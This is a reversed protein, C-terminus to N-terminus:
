LPDPKQPEYHPNQTIVLRDDVADVGDTCQSHTNEYNHPNFSSEFTLRMSKTKKKNITREISYYGPYAKGRKGIPFYDLPKTAAPRENVYMTTKLDTAVARCALGMALACTYADNGPRHTVEPDDDDAHKKRKWEALGRLLDCTAFHDAVTTAMTYPKEKDNSVVPQLSYANTWLTSFVVPNERLLQDAEEQRPVPKKPRMRVRKVCEWPIRTRQDKWSTWPTKQCPRKTLKVAQKEPILAHLKTKMSPTHYDDCTCVVKPPRDCKTKPAYLEALAARGTPDIHEVNTILLVTNEPVGRYFRSYVTHKTENGREECLDDGAWTEVVHFGLSHMTRIVDSALCDDDRGCCLLPREAHKWATYAKAIEPEPKTGPVCHHSFPM